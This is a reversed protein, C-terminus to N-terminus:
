SAAANDIIAMQLAKGKAVVYMSMTKCQDAAVFQDMDFDFVIGQWQQLLVSV